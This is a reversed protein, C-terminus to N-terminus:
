NLDITKKFFCVATESDFTEEFSSAKFVHHAHALDRCHEVSNRSSALVEYAYRRCNKKNVITMTRNDLFSGDIRSCVRM